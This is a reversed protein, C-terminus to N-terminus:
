EQLTSGNKLATTTATNASCNSGVGSIRPEFEVMPLIIDMLQLYFLHFYLFLLRSLAWRDFVTSTTIKLKTCTCKFGWAVKEGQSRHGNGLFHELEHKRDRCCAQTDYIFSIPAWRRLRWDSLRQEKCPFPRTRLLIDRLCIEIARMCVYISLSTTSM